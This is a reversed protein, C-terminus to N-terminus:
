LHDNRFHSIQYIRLETRSGHDEEKFGGLLIDRLIVSLECHLGDRFPGDLRGSREKSFEDLVQM